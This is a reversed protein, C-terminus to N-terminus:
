ALLRLPTSPSVDDRSAAYWMLLEPRELVDRAHERKRWSEFTEGRQRGSGTAPHLHGRMPAGYRSSIGGVFDDGRPDYDDFDPESSDSGEPHRRPPVTTRHSGAAPPFLRTGSGSSVNRRAGPLASFDDLDMDDDDYDDSHSGPRNYPDKGRAQRDRQASTFAPTSSVSSRGANRLNSTPVPQAPSRTAPTSSSSQGHAFPFPLPPGSPTNNGSPSNYYGSM